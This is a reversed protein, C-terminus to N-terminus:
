WGTKVQLLTNVVPQNNRESLHVTLQRGDSAFEVKRTCGADAEVEMERFIAHGHGRPNRVFVPRENPCLGEVVARGLM